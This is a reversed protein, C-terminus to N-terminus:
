ASVRITSIGEENISLVGHEEESWLLFTAFGWTRRNWIDRIAKPSVGYTKALPVSSRNSGRVVQDACVFAPMSTPKCRYIDIAQEATLINGSM